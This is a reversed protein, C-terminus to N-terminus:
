NGTKGGNFYVLKHEGISITDGDKLTYGNVKNGEVYTGNTSDLDEIFSENLITLIKAHRNSVAPSDIAIVNGPDRGISITGRDLAYEKITDGNINLVLKAMTNGQPM